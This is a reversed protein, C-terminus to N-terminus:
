GIQINIDDLLISCRGISISECNINVNKGIKVSPHIDINKATINQM